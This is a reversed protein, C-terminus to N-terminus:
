LCKGVEQRASGVLRGQCRSCALGWLECLVAGFWSYWQSRSDLSGVQWYFAACTPFGM